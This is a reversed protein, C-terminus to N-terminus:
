LIFISNLLLKFTVTKGFILTHHQYQKKAELAQLGLEASGTAVTDHVCQLCSKCTRRLEELQAPSISELLRATSIPELPVLPPPSLLLSEPVPVAGPSGFVCM